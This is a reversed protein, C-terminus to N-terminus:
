TPGLYVRFAARGSQAIKIPEFSDGPSVGTALRLIEFDELWEDLTELLELVEDSSVPDGRGTLARHYLDPNYSM